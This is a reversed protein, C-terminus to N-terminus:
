LSVTVSYKFAFNDIIRPYAYSGYRYFVGAGMKVLPLNLLGKVVFGSEFYGRTMTPAGWGFSTSLTLQPRFFVTNPSWLMGQFDHSLFLAVFRSCLFESERMTAFSGPSYLGLPEYSGLMNFTEMAPCGESAYGAQLLVSTMGWYYTQFDKELQFKFRDFTYEGGLIDKFAHQYSLWVIPYDTGLSRIGKTTGIFRERYAFRLKIEAKTYHTMPLTDFPQLYYHKESSGFSLFAKFHRAFRTTYFWETWVGRVMVNEYFTYRYQKESLLSAGDTFGGFEGLATSKHDLRVGMEEQRWPNILWKGEFGYDFDRLKSWYGGYVSFRFHPSVRDNTTLYLGTYWGRTRSIRLLKSLNLDVPGMPLSTEDVLKDSLNLVRDFLDNGETLSDMLHYTNLIRETLSDIRHQNWFEDDRYAADGHVSLEVESFDKNSLVPHLVVESIYSKGVAVIPFTAGDVEAVINPFVLNTNLQKPFWQGDIKQYLQQISISYSGGDDDPSAKVNQVAWGDSHIAMTGRLGKFTSGKRPHFSIVYLSDTGGVPTVSELTFFYHNKSNRSIPNVYETGAVNVIEDYFSSSQMLSALYVVQANSAGSMKTGLVNQRLQDPSRFLVESYTEMVMLDSKRILNNLRGLTNPPLTDAMKGWNTSDITFVMLDYIHYRYSDLASPHNEKRHVMVSDVIRHAPNDGAEVTVEDLQFSMPQLAINLRKGDPEVHRELPEYGLCSFKLVRIPEPASLEYKGDIDSMGGYQGDNVVINVFALPQRNQADTIKGVVTYRQSFLCLSLFCLLITLLRRM